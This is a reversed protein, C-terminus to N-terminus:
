LLGYTEIYLKGDEADLDGDLDLDAERDSNYSHGEGYWFSNYLAGEPKVLTGDKYKTTRLNGAMWGQDGIQVGKYMNGDIDTLTGNWTTISVENSYSIDTENSAFARIYYKTDPQLNTLIANLTSIDDVQVLSDNVVPNPKTSWCFGTKLVKTGGDSVVRAYGEASYLLVNIISDLMVEPHHHVIEKEKKCASVFMFSALVILYSLKRM